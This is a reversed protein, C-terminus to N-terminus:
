LAADDAIRSPLHQAGDERPAVVVILSVAPAGMWPRLARAYRMGVSWGSASPVNAHLEVVSTTTVTSAPPRDPIPYVYASAEAAESALVTSASAMRCRFLKSIGAQQFAMCRATR